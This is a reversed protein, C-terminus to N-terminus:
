QKTPIDHVTSHTTLWQPKNSPLSTMCISPKTTALKKSNYNQSPNSTLPLERLNNPAVEIKPSKAPHYQKPTETLKYSKNIKKIYNFNEKIIITSKNVTCNYNVQHTSFM